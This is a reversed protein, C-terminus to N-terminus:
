SWPAILARLFCISFYFLKPFRTTRITSVGHKLREHREGVRVLGACRSGRCPRRRVSDCPLALAGLHQQRQERDAGLAGGPCFGSSSSDWGDSATRRPRVCMPHILRSPEQSSCKGEILFPLSSWNCPVHPLDFNKKGQLSTLRLYFPSTAGIM